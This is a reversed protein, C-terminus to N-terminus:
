LAPPRYIGPTLYSLPPLERERTITQPAPHALASSPDFAFLPASVCCEGCFTCGADANLATPSEAQMAAHGPCDDSMAHSQAPLGAMHIPMTAAVGARVLLSAVVVAVIFRFFVFSRM